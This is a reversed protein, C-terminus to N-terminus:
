AMPTLLSSFRDIQIMCKTSPDRQAEWEINEIVDQDIGEPAVPDSTLKIAPITFDYRNNALDSYYFSLKGQEVVLQMPSMVDYTTGSTLILRFAVFPERNLIEAVDRANM